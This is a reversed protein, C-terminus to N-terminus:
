NIAELRGMARNLHALRMNARVSCAIDTEDDGDGAWAAGVAAGVRTPQKEDDM